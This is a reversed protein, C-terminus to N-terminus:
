QQCPMVGKKNKIRKVLARFRGEGLTDIVSQKAKEAEEISLHGYEFCYGNATLTTKSLPKSIDRIKLTISAEKISDFYLVDGNIISIATIPKKCSENYKLINSRAHIISKEKLGNDFAHKINEGPTCWELNSVSNNEKNTDKHNVQPLNNPNPIFACAVLRHVTPYKQKGKVHLTVVCYGYKDIKQKLEKIRGSKNYNMSRVKGTNSVEYSGNTGEIERWEENM